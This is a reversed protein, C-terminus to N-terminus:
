EDSEVLRYFNGDNLKRIIALRDSFIQRVTAEDAAPNQELIGVLSMERMEDFLDAGARFKADFSTELARLVKECFIANAMQRISDADM